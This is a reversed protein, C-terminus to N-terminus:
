HDMEHHIRQSELSMVRLSRRDRLIRQHDHHPDYQAYRYKEIREVHKQQM